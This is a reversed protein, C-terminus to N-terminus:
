TTILAYYLAIVAIIILSVALVIALTKVSIKKGAVM